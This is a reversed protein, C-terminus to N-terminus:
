RPNAAVPRLRARGETIPRNVATHTSGTLEAIEGYTHGAAHLFLDRRARNSRRVEPRTRAPDRPQHHQRGPRRRPHRPRRDRGLRDRNTLFVGARVEEERAMLRWAARTAILKLWATGHHDLTIDPRRVLALWAAACADDIVAHDASRGRYRVVAEVRPNQTAYFAALSDSRERNAATATM